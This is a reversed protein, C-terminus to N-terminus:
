ARPPTPEFPRLEVEGERLVLATSQPVALWAEHIKGIPESVVVRASPGFNERLRPYMSGLDDMGRSHYLTPADGDSAYRVAYVADGDSVGLTMWLSQEIGRRRGAEEIFGAMRQLAGLPDQELGLTLALFFMAESDTTGLM